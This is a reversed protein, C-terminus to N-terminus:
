TLKVEQRLALKIENETECVLKMSLKFTKELSTEHPLCHTLEPTKPLWQKNQIVLGQKMLYLMGLILNVKRSQANALKLNNLCQTIHTACFMCLDNSARSCLKLKLHHMTQAFVTLFCPITVRESSGGQKIKQTKLAKVSASQIRAITKNVEDRKCAISLTGTLFWKVLSLVEDFLVKCQKLDPGKVHTYFVDQVYECNSYRVAPVCFGTITCCISCDDTQVLKCDSEDLVVKCNHHAGCKLCGANQVDYREWSHEQCSIVRFPGRLKRWICHLSCKKQKVHQRQMNLVFLLITLLYVVAEIRGAV